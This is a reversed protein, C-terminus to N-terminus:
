KFGKNQVKCRRMQQWSYTSRRRTPSTTASIGELGGLRWPAKSFLATVKDHFGFDATLASFTKEKSGRDVPASSDMAIKSYHQTTQAALVVVSAPCSLAYPITSCNPIFGDVSANGVLNHKM